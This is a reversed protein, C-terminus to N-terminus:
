IQWKLEGGACREPENQTKCAPFMTIAGSLVSCFVRQILWEPVDTGM